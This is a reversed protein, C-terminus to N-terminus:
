MLRCLAVGFAPAVCAYVRHCLAVCPSMRHCMFVHPSVHLCLSVGFELTVSPSLHLYAAVRLIQTVHPSPLCISALVRVKYKYITVHFTADCFISEALYNMLKESWPWVIHLAKIVPRCSVSPATHEIQVTAGPWKELLSRLFKVTLNADQGSPFLKKWKNICDRATYERDINMIGIQKTLRNLEAAVNRFSPPSSRSRADILADVCVESWVKADQKYLDKQSSAIEPLRLASRYAEQYQLYLKINSENAESPYLMGKRLGWKFLCTTIKGSIKSKIADVVKTKLGFGVRDRPRGSGATNRSSLKVALSMEKAKSTLWEYTVHESTAFIRITEIDCPFNDRMLQEPPKTKKQKVKKKNTQTRTATPTPTVNM